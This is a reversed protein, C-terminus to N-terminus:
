RTKSVRRVRGVTERNEQVVVDTRGITAGDKEVEVSYRGPLLYRPATSGRGDTFTLARPSLRRERIAIEHRQVLVPVRTGDARKVRIRANAVPENAEDTVFVKLTGGVRMHLQVGASGGRDVACEAWAEWREHNPDFARLTYTGSELARISFRGRDDLAVSRRRSRAHDGAPSLHVRGGDVPAGHPSVVRGDIRAGADLVLTLPAPDVGPEISIRVSASREGAATGAFIDYTGERLPRRFQGDLDVVHRKPPIWAQEPGARRGDIMEVQVWFEAAPVRTDRHVVRGSVVALRRLTLTHRGRDATLGGIRDADYGAKHAGVRLCGEERFLGEIRFRGDADTIARRTDALSFRTPGASVNAGEVPQGHDDVVRGTLIGGRRLTFDASTRRGSTVRVVSRTDRLLPSRYLLQADRALATVDHVGPLVDLEYRGDTDTRTAWRGNESWVRVCAEAIGVGNADTVRGHLTGGRRLQVVVGKRQEGPKGPPLQVRTAPFGVARVRLIQYNAYAPDLGPLRFRGEGDTSVGSDRSLSRDFTVFADVVPRRDSDLVVGEVVGTRDVYVDAVRRIPGSQEPHDGVSNYNFKSFAWGEARIAFATASRVSPDVGRMRFLGSEDTMARAAKNSAAIVEVGAVPRNTAKDVVRGVVTVGDGVVFDHRTERDARIPLELDRTIPSPRDTPVVIAGYEGPQLEDFAYRGDRGTTVGGIPVRRNVGGYPDNRRHLVVHTDPCPEGRPDVVRGVLRGGRGLRFDQTTGVHAPRHATFYGPASAELIVARTSSEPAIPGVRYAGEADARCSALTTDVDSAYGARARRVVRVLSGAIPEGHRNRVHGWISELRRLPPPVDVVREGAESPPAEATPEPSPGLPSSEVRASAAPRESSTPEVTVGDDGGIQLVVLAIGAAIGIAITAKLKVSMGIAGKVLGAGHLGAMAALTRRDTNQAALQEGLIRLARKLRTRVTEVPVSLREAVQSPRLGEYFRLVVVDRYHDPLTLVARVVVRRMQERAVIDDVSPLHEPTAVQEERRRIRRERTRARVSVNRVVRRLWARANSPPRELMAVWTDQVADDVAHEDALLRGALARVWDEHALLTEASVPKRM